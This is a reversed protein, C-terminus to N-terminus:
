VAQASNTRVPREHQKHGGYKEASSVEGTIYILIAILKEKHETKSSRAGNFLNTFLFILNDSARGELALLTTRLKAKIASRM